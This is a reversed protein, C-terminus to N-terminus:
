LNFIIDIIIVSLCLNQTITLLCMSQVYAASWFPLFTRWMMTSFTLSNSTQLHNEDLTICFIEFHNDVHSLALRDKMWVVIRVGNCWRFISSLREMENYLLHILQKNTPLHYKPRTIFILSFCNDCLSLATTDNNASVCKPGRSCSLISSLSKM